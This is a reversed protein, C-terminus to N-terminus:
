DNSTVRMRQWGDGWTTLWIQAQTMADFDSEADLLMSGLSLGAETEGFGLRQWIVCRLKKATKSTAKKRM